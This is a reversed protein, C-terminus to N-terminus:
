NWIRVAHQQYGATIGFLTDLRLQNSASSNNWSEVLRLSMGDESIISAKAGATPEWLRPSAVIFADKQFALNLSAVAGSASAMEYVTVAAGSVPLASINQIAGSASSYMPAISITISGASGTADALAVLQLYGNTTTPSKFAVKTQANVPYYGTIEFTTGKTITTGSGGTYALIITSAGEVYTTGVTVTSGVMTGKIHSPLTQSQYLKFGAFDESLFGKEYGKNIAMSPNFQTSQYNGLTAMAQPTIVLTRDDLDGAFSTIAAASTFGVANSAGFVTGLTGAQNATNNMMYSAVLSEIKNALVVAAPKIFRETLGNPGSESLFTTLEQSTFALDVGYMGDSTAGTGTGGDLTLTVNQENIDQASYTQGSRVSLLDSKRILTSAGPGYGYMSNKFSDTENWCNNYLAMNNRLIPLATKTYLSLAKITQSM